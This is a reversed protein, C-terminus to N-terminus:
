DTDQKMLDDLTVDLDDLLSREFLSDLDEESVKDEDEFGVVPIKTTDERNVEEIRIIRNINIESHLLGNLLIVKMDDSSDENFDEPNSIYGSDITGDDLEILVFKTLFPIFDNPKM